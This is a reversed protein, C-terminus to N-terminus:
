KSGQNQASPSSGSTNSSPDFPPMTMKKRQDETEGADPAKEIDHMKALRKCKEKLHGFFYCHSCFKPLHEYSVYQTYQIGSPLRVEFSEIPVTSSDIEVLVGAYSIHKRENTINDICIPKGLKSAIRSNAHTNWCQLPLSHIQVWVLVINYDEDLFCFNEPITHLLLTRGYFNEPIGYKM